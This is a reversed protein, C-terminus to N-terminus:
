SAQHKDAKDAQRTWFRACLQELAMAGFVCLVFEFPARYRSQAGFFSAGAAWFSGTYFLLFCWAKAPIKKRSWVIGAMALLALGLSQLLTIIFVLADPLRQLQGRASLTDNFLRSDTQAGPVPRGLLLQTSFTFNNGLLTKAAWLAIRPLKYPLSKLTLARGQRSLWHQQRALPWHYFNDPRRTRLIHDAEQNTIGHAAAYADANWIYTQFASFSTFGGWGTQVYNRLQWGGVIIFLPVLFAALPKIFSTKQIILWGALLLTCMSAFTYVVPRVTVAVALLLSAYVLARLRNQLLYELVFYVFWALLFACLIESLLAFSYVFYLVSAACLVASLRATRRPAFLGTIQYAAAPLFSSLLIQMCIAGLPSGPLVHFLFLFLPYGPTRLTMPQPIHADLLIGNTWLTQAPYLYGWTDPFTFVSQGLPNFFCIYLLFLFKAAILCVILKLIFPDKYFKM